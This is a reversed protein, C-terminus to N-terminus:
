TITTSIPKMKNVSVFITIFLIMGFLAMISEITLMGFSGWKGHAWEDIYIMYYIPANSLSAFVNYNTVAIGQGYKEEKHDYNLLQVVKPLDPIRM